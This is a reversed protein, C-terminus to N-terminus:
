EVTDYNTLHIISCSNMIKINDLFALINIGQHYQPCFRIGYQPYLRIGYEMNNISGSKMNWMTSRVQNWIVYLLYLRIGYEMNLISVSEM